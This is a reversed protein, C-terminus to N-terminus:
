VVKTWNGLPSCHYHPKIVMQLRRFPRDLYFRRWEDYKVSIDSIVYKAKPKNQFPCHHYHPKVKIWLRRIHIDVCFQCFNDYKAMEMMVIFTIYRLPYAHQVVWAKGLLEGSDQSNFDGWPCYQCKHSLLRVPTSM